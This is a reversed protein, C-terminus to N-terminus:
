SFVKQLCRHVEYVQEIIEKFSTSIVLIARIKLGLDRPNAIRAQLLMVRKFPKINLFSHGTSM